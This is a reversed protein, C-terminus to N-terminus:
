AACDGSCHSRVQEPNEALIPKWKGRALFGTALISLPEAIIGFIWFLDPRMTRAITSGLFAALFGAQPGLLIGEIPEIYIAWNRWLGFSVFYLVVHLAGFIAILSLQQSKRM